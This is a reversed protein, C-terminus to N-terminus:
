SSKKINYVNSDFFNDPIALRAAKIKEICLPVYGTEVLTGQANRKFIPARTIVDGEMGTLEIIEHIERKGNTLRRIQVILDISQAIQQRITKLPLNLNAYQLLVEIRSLTDEASNAHISTMSGEHGSNMAQLMEFTEERRCEGVIIRDPRMRLSNVLCDNISVKNKGAVATLSVWNPNSLKLEQVDEISVVRENKPISESLANLVTTKGTGTGGSIVISVKAKVAADLFTAAKKSMAGLHALDYISLLKHSFKRITLTRGVPSM